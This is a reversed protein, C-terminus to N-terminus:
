QGKMQMLLGLLRRAARDRTQRRFAEAYGTDLRLGALLSQLADLRDNCAGMAADAITRPDAEGERQSAEAILCEGYANAAKVMDGREADTLTDPLRTAGSAEPEMAQTVPTIAALLVCLHTAKMM